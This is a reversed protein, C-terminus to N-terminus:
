VCTPVTTASKQNSNVSTWGELSSKLVYFYTTNPSLGTDITTTLVGVHKVFGYPGGSTTARYVDYGDPVLGTLPATWLLTIQCLVLDATAVDLTPPDVKGTTLVNDSNTATDTFIAAAPTAVALAAVMVLTATGLRRAGRGSRTPPSRRGRDGGMPTPKRRLTLLERVILAAAPLVVLLLRGRGTAAFGYLTGIKPLRLDVRGVVNGGPILNPDPSPNNDGKTRFHIEGGIRHVGVVRHTVLRDTHPPRFAIVVGARLSSSGVRKLLLADGPDAAPALSGGTVVLTRYGFAASLAPIALLLCVAVASLTTGSMVIERWVSRRSPGAAHGFEDVREKPSRRSRAMPEVASRSRGTASRVAM